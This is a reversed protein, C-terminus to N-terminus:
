AKADEKGKKSEEKIRLEYYTRVLPTNNIYSCKNLAEGYRRFRVRSALYFPGYTKIVKAIRDDTLVRPPSLTSPETCWYAVIHIKSRKRSSIGLTEFLVTFHLRRNM